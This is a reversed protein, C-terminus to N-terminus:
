RSFRSRSLNVNSYADHYTFYRIKPCKWCRKRLTQLCCLHHIRLDFFALWCLPCFFCLLVFLSRCILVCYVISRIVRTWSLVPPSRLHEPLILLEQEVLPM